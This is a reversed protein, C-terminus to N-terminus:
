VPFSVNLKMARSREMFCWAACFNDDQHITTWLLPTGLTVDM